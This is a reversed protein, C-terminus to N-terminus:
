YYDTEDTSGREEEYYHQMGKSVVLKHAIQWSLLFVLVGLIIIMAYMEDRKAKNVNNEQKM